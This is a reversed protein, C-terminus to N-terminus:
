SGTGGFPVTPATFNIGPSHAVGPMFVFDQVWGGWDGNDSAGSLGSFVEVKDDLYGINTAKGATTGV